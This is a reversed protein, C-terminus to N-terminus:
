NQASNFFHITHEIQKKLTTVEEDAMFSVYEKFLDSHYDFQKKKWQSTALILEIALIEEINKVVQECKIASSGGMGKIDITKEFLIPSEISAPTSLRRNENLIGEIIRQFIPYDIETEIEKGINSLLYFVRRESINGLSTLTIALFDMALTLPLTHSNGGFIIEQSEPFLIPNDTVSNMETKIVKRIAAISERVAGHIQPISCFAEPMSSFAQAQTALTSDKLLTRLHEATEVLGRHPRVVQMAESFASLNGGFTQTSVSAVFDAWQIIQLSKSLNYIGYATTLQTGNLLADAERMELSLPQWGYKDELEQASYIKNHICVEGEGFLPLALHALAIREDPIDKSYVVPLVGKNYFDILRQVLALRVGSYGYSFSQIKLFLMLKVIENPIREGIGCAYHRLLSLSGVSLRNLIEPDKKCYDSLFHHCTEINIVAEESLKLQTDGEVIAILQELLLLENSIYHEM